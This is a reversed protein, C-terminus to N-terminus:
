ERVHTIIAEQDDIPFVEIFNIRNLPYLLTDVEPNIYSIPRGDRMRPRHVTIFNVSPDPFEDLEAIIPDENIIHIIVKIM